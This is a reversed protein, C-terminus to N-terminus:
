LLTFVTKSFKTNFHRTISVQENALTCLQKLEAVTTYDWLLAQGGMLKGIGSGEARERLFTDFSSETAEESRSATHMGSQPGVALAKLSYSPAKSMWSTGPDLIIEVQDNDEADSGFGSNDTKAAIETATKQLDEDVDEDDSDEENGDDEAVEGTSEDGDDIDDVRSVPYRIAAAGAIDFALRHSDFERHSTSVFTMALGVEERPCGAKWTTYIENQWQKPYEEMRLEWPVDVNSQLAPPMMAYDMDHCQMCHLLWIIMHDTDCGASDLCLQTQVTPDGFPQSMPLVLCLTHPIVPFYWSMEYHPLKCLTCWSASHDGQLIAVYQHQFFGVANQITTLVQGPHVFVVVASYAFLAPDDGYNGQERGEVVDLLNLPMLSFLVAHTYLTDPDESDTWRQPNSPSATSSWQAIISNNIIFAPIGIHLCYLAQVM